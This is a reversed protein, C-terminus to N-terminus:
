RHAQYFDERDIFKQAFDIIEPSCSAVINSGYSTLDLFFPLGLYKRATPDAKSIVALSKNRTLDEPQCGLDIASQRLAIAKIYENTM